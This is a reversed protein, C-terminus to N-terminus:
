SETFKSKYNSIRPKAEKLKRGLFINSKFYLFVYSPPFEETELDITKFEDYTFNSSPTDLFETIRKELTDKSIGVVSKVDQYTRFFGHVRAAM